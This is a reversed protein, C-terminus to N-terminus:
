CLSVVIFCTFLVDLLWCNFCVFWFFVFSHLWVFCSLWDSWTGVGLSIFGGFFGCVWFLLWGLCVLCFLCIIRLLCCFYFDGSLNVVSNLLWFLRLFCFWMWFVGFMLRWCVCLVILCYLVLVFWDGILVVLDVFFLVLLWCCLIM